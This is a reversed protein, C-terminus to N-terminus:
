CCVYIIKKEAWSQKAKNRWKIRTEKWYWASSRITRAKIAQETTRKNLHYTYTVISLTYDALTACSITSFLSHCYHSYEEAPSLIPILINQKTFTQALIQLWCFRISLVPILQTWPLTSSASPLTRGVTSLSLARYM